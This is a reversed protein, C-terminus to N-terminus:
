LEDAPCWRYQGDLATPYGCLCNESYTWCPFEPSEHYWSGCTVCRVAPSGTEISAKCRPCFIPQDLEPLPEVVPLRESSFYIPPRDALQISDRDRLVRLGTQLRVGNVQTPHSPQALLAFAEGAASSACPLLLAGGSPPRSGAGHPTLVPATPRLAYVANELEHAMWGNAEVSMWMLSM